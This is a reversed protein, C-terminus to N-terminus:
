FLWGLRIGILESKGSANPFAASQYVNRTGWNGYVHVQFICAESANIDLGVLGHVFVDTKYYRDTHDEVLHFGDEVSLFIYKAYIMRSPIIGLEARLRTGRFPELGRLVLALPIELHYFKIRARHTSDPDGLGKFVDPTIIGAGKAHFTFGATIGLAPTIFYEGKITLGLGPRWFYTDPLSSGKFTVLSNNFTAGWYWKKQWISKQSVSDSQAIAASSITVLLIILKIVSTRM